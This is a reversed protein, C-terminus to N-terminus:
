KGHNIERLRSSWQWIGGVVTKPLKQGLARTILLIQGRHHAEHSLAYGLFLIVNRPMAGYVFASSVGPFQGDNKIANTIMKEVQIGSKRLAKAVDRQTARTADVRPPIPVPAGKALSSMWLCRCNHIHAAISRITRRSYSPLSAKWLLTPMNEILFIFVRNNIRWAEIISGETTDMDTVAKMKLLILDAIVAHRVPPSM